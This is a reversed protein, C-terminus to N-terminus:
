SINWKRLLRTPTLAIFVMFAAMIAPVVPGRGVIWGSLAPAAIAILIPVLWSLARKRWARALTTVSIQLGFMAFWWTVFAIKIALSGFQVSSLVFSSITVLVACTVGVWGEFRLKM